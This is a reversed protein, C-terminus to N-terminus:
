TLNRLLFLFSINGIRDIKLIFMCREKTILPAILINKSFNTTLM